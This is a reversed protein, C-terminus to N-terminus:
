FRGQGWLILVLMNYVRDLISRNYRYKIPNMWVLAAWYSNTFSPHCVCPESMAMAAKIISSENIVISVLAGLRM